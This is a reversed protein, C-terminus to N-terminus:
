HPLQLILMLLTLYKKYNTPFTSSFWIYVAVSNSWLRIISLSRYLESVFIPIVYIKFNFKQHLIHILYSKTGCMRLWYTCIHVVGLVNQARGDGDQIIHKHSSMCARNFTWSVDSTPHTFESAISVLRCVLVFCVFSFVRLVSFLTCLIFPISYLFLVIYPAAPARPYINSLSM